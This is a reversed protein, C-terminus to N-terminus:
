RRGGGRFASPACGRRAKFVRCFYQASSFGCAEALEALSCGGSSLLYVAKRVRHELLEDIPSVKFLEKYLAAFRSRGLGAAKALSAVTWPEELRRLM